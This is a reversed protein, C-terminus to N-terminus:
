IHILSLNIDQGVQVWTDGINEFVQVQGSSAFAESNTISGVVVRMGDESVAVSSGFLDNNFEGILEDNIQTQAFATLPFLGVLLILLTKM